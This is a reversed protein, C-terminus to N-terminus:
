EEEEDTTEDSSNELNLAHHIKLALITIGGILAVIVALAGFILWLPIYWFSSFGVVERTTNGAQGYFVDLKITNHGISVHPKACVNTVVPSNYFDLVKDQGKICATFLRSQGILASTINRNANSINIINKGYMPSIIITGIPSEVLNGVNLLTYGIEKPASTAFKVYHGGAASNDTKYAGLMQLTLSQKVQGPVTLFLLSVGSANLNVSSDSTGAAVYEVAGYYSGPAQDSPVKITIPIDKSADPDLTVTNPLTIFPKLSWFPQPTSQNTVLKPTGTSNLFTFDLVRLTLILKLKNNLNTVPLTSPTSQGPALIYDRRPALTLGSSNTAAASVPATTFGILFVMVIVRLFLLPRKM